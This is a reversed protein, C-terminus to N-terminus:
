LNQTNESQVNRSLELFLANRTAESRKPLTQSRSPMRQEATPCERVWKIEKHEIRNMGQKM